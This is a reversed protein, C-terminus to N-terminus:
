RRSVGGGAAMTAAAATAGAMGTAGAVTGASVTTATGVTGTMAASGFAGAALGGTLYIAAAIAVVGVVIGAVKATGSFAESGTTNKAAFLALLMRTKKLSPDKDKQDIFNILTSVASKMNSDTIVWDLVPEDFVELLDECTPSLEKIIGDVEEYHARSVRIGFQAARIATIYRLLGEEDPTFDVSNGSPKGSEDMLPISEISDAIGAWEDMVKNPDSPVFDSRVDEQLAESIMDVIAKGTVPGIVARGTTPDIEVRGEKGTAVRYIAQVTSESGKRGYPDYGRRAAPADAPQSDSQKAKGSMREWADSAFGM